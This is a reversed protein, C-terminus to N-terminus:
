LAISITLDPYVSSCDMTCESVLHEYGVGLGLVLSGSVYLLGGRTGVADVDAIADGVFWHTYYGAVYPILPWTGVLPQAVYRLGPTTRLITPGDGWQVQTGLDIAVGDLVFYGAAVGIGFYRQDFVSTTGAGASLAFRGRDFPTRERPPEEEPVPQVAGPAPQAAAASSALAVLALARIM